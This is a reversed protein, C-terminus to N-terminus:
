VDKQELCTVDAYNLHELFFITWQVGDDEGVLAALLIDGIVLFFLMPSLIYGRLVGSRKLNLKFEELILRGIIVIKKGSHRNQTSCGQYM